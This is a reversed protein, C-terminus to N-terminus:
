LTRKSIIVKVLINLKRAWAEIASQYESWNGGALGCGIGHPFIVRWQRLNGDKSEDMFADILWKYLETLGSKFWKLRLQRDENIGPARQGFLNCVWGNGEKKKKMSIKGVEQNVRVKYVDTEPWRSFIQHAIGKAHKSLLNCQHVLVTTEGNFNLADGELWFVQGKMTKEKWTASYDTKSTEKKEQKVNKKTGTAWYDIINSQDHPQSNHRIIIDMDLQEVIANIRAKCKTGSLATGTPDKKTKCRNCKGTVYWKRDAEDGKIAIVWGKKVTLGAQAIKQRLMTKTSIPGADHLTMEWGKISIDDRDDINDKVELSATDKKLIKEDNSDNKAAPVVMIGAKKRPKQGDPGNEFEIKKVTVNNNETGSVPLATGTGILAADKSVKITKKGTASKIEALDFWAMHEYEDEQRRDIMTAILKDIRLLKYRSWRPLDAAYGVIREKDEWGLRKNVKDFSINIQEESRARIALAMTRRSTHDSMELIKYLASVEGRKLPFSFKNLHQSHVTCLESHIGALNLKGCNCEFKIWRKRMSKLKDDVIYVEAFNEWQVFDGFEIGLVSATRLGLNLIICLIGRQRGTLKPWNLEFINENLPKAKKPEHDEEARKCEKEIDALHSLITGNNIGVLREKVEEAKWRKLSWKSNNMSAPDGPPSKLWMKIHSRRTIVDKYEADVLAVTYEKLRRAEIPFSLARLEMWVLFQEIDRIKQNISSISNCKEDAYKAADNGFVGEGLVYLNKLNHKATMKVRNYYHTGM